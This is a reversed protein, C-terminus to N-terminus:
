SDARTPTTTSPALFGFKVKVAGPQGALATNFSTLSNTGKTPDVLTALSADYKPDSPNVRAYEVVLYTDRGFTTDNYAAAVPALNTGTGSYALQGNVAGLKLTPFASITNPAAGDSQAIWSGASFPIIQYDSIQGGTNEQPGTPQNDGTPVATGVTTVNIAKLFFKRTGSASQPLRPTIPSSCLTTNPSTANYIATLQAATLNALAAACATDSAPVQYAYSVADRAFPVFVIPGNVDVVSPGSSSRAIDVQGTMTEGNLPTGSISSLLASIGAGSGGPRTFFGGTSKTRIKASGFADFSGLSVGNASVRVTAGTVSTGNVLANMSDQLTDSGVAAYGGTVPDASAPVATAVLGSIVGAAVGLAAIKRIKM